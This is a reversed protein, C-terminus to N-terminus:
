ININKSKLVKKVIILIGGVIVYASAYITIKNLVSSLVTQIMNRAFEETISYLEHSIVYNAGLTIILLLGGVVLLPIYVARLKEKAFILTLVLIFLLIVVLATQVKAIVDGIVFFEKVDKEIEPSIKIDSLTDGVMSDTVEKLKDESVEINKSKIYNKFNNYYENFLLNSDIYIEGGAYFKNVFDEVVNKMASETLVSDILENADFEEVESLEGKISKKLEEKIKNNAERYVNGKDLTEVIFKGDFVITYSIQVITVAFLLLSIITVVLFKGFKRM